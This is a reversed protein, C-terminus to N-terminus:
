PYKMLNIRESDSMDSAKWFSNKKKRKLDLPDFGIARAIMSIPIIITFYILVLLIFTNMKGLVGGIKMWYKYIPRLPTQYFIGLLIVPLSIYLVELKVTNYKVYPILLGFLCLLGIGLILSFDRLTKNSIENYEKVCVSM